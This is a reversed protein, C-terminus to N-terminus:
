LSGSGVVSQILPAVLAEWLAAAVLLPLALALAEWSWRSLVALEGRRAQIIFLALPLFVAVLEPLAHPLVLVVLEAPPAHLYASLGALVFGIGATQLAVSFLTVTWAYALSARAMWAPVAIHLYRLPGWSAPLPRHPRSIMAGIACAGLHIFLVAMNRALIPWVEAPNAQGSALPNFRADAPDAPLLGAMIVVGCLMAAAITGSLAFWGRVEM